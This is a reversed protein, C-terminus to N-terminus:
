LQLNGALALALLACLGLIFLLGILALVKLCSGEQGPAPQAGPYPGGAQAPPQYTNPPYPNPYGGQPTHQAPRKVVVWLLVLGILVMAAVLVNSEM